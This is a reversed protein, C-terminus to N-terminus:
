ASIAILSRETTPIGASTTLGRAETRVALASEGSQLDASSAHITPHLHDGEQAPTTPHSVRIYEDLAEQLISALDDKIREQLERSMRQWITTPHHPM